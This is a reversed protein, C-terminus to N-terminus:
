HVFVVEFLPKRVELPSQFFRFPLVGSFFRMRAVEVSTIGGLGELGPNFGDGHDILPDGTDLVLETLRIKM